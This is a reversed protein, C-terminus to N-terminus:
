KPKPKKKKELCLAILLTISSFPFNWRFNFCSIWFLLYFLFLYLVFDNYDISIICEVGHKHNITDDNANDGVELELGDKKMQKKM